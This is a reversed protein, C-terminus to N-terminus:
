FSISVYGCYVNNHYLLLYKKSVQLCEKIVDGTVLVDKIMKRFENKMIDLRKEFNETLILVKQKIILSWTKLQDKIKAVFNRVSEWLNSLTFYNNKTTDSAPPLDQQSESQYNNLNFRLVNEIEYKHKPLQYSKQFLINHCM